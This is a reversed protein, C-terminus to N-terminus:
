LLLVTLMGGAAAGLSRYIRSKKGAEERDQELQKLVQRVTRAISVVQGQVDYKGLMDFLPGLLAKQERTIGLEDAWSEFLETFRKGKEAERACDRLMDRVTRNRSLKAALELSDPMPRANLDIEREMIEIGRLVDRLLDINKKKQIGELLGVGFCGGLILVSGMVRIM